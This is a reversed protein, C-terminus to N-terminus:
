EGEKQLAVGWDNLKAQWEQVIYAGDKEPDPAFCACNEALWEVVEKIGERRAEELLSDLEPCPQIMFYGCEPCTIKIDM